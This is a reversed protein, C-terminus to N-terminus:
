IGHTRETINVSLLGTLMRKSSGQVMNMLTAFGAPKNCILLDQRSISPNYDPKMFFHENALMRISVNHSFMKVQKRIYHIFVDSSWRGIIIITYAAVHALYVTMVSGSRVSRTGIDEAKIDLKDKCIVV